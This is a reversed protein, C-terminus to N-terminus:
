EVGKGTVVVASTSGDNSTSILRLKKFDSDPLVFEKRVTSAPISAVSTLQSLDVHCGTVM